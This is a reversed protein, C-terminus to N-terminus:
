RSIIAVDALQFGFARLADGRACQGLPHPQRCRLDPLIEVAEAAETLLAVAVIDFLQLLLEARDQAQACSARRNKQAGAVEAAGQEVVEIERRAAKLQQTCEVGTRLQDAASKAAILHPVCFLKVVIDVLEVRINRHQGDRAAVRRRDRATQDLAADAAQPVERALIQMQLSETNRDLIYM